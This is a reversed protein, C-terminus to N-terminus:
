LLAVAPDAPPGTQALHCVFTAGQGPGPSFGELRGGHREAIGRSIFLGLGTGPASVQDVHAQGFPVFMRALQEASFGLGNDQVELRVERADGGYRVTVHGERPTYKIANSVLNYLIQSTRKPDIAVVLSDPGEVEIHIAKAEAPPRYTEIAERVVAALDAPQRQIALRGSQLRAVDLMDQVLLAMREVNRRVIALARKRASANGTEEASTLIHLQLQLPTLPTNLEHAAANLFDTKFRDLERLREVERIEHERRELEVEQALVDRSAFARTSEQAMLVGLAGALAIYVCRVLVDGANPLLHGMVALLGVYCAVYMATAWMTAKYDYRFSVALLSLFWLLHFPSDYGGTSFIWLTILIADTVATFMAAQLIPWRLYPRALVVYFAYTVALVSITLALWPLGQDRLLPWYVAVNFLIVALRVYAIDREAAMAKDHIPGPAM